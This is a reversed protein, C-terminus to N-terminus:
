YRVLVQMKMRLEALVLGVYQLPANDTHTVTNGEVNESARLKSM